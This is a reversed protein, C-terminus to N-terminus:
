LIKASGIYLLLLNKSIYLCCTYIVQSAEKATTNSSSPHPNNHPTLLGQSDLDFDAPVYVYTHLSM